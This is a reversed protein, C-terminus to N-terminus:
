TGALREVVPDLEGVAGVMVSTIGLEDRLRQFKAVFDDVTGIFIHPSDLLEEASIAIGRGALESQGVISAPSAARAARERPM